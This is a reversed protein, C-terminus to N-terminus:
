LEDVQKLNKPVAIGVSQFIRGCIGKLENRMLFRKGEHEIEVKELSNLDRIIDKWEYKYGKKDLRDELTKMLVLALFSCFVHGKITEDCKHYIPRTQLSSKIRRFLDEVTWLQKYKLAVDATDLTTNTNLVYKGDYKAEKKIKDVDLSVSNQEAKLYKRYGKNGVLSKEGSKLKKRLSEIIVKRTKIDKTAQDENFCIIWRQGDLNIEKVKLPSPGNQTKPHVVMYRGGRKLVKEGVVKQKRMRSGLIYQWGLEEVMAINNKSVMGRDAVICISKIGVRKKLRKVVPVLRSVDSTNGPLIECCVPQGTNDLVAGVILQKRDSRHDKSNGYEGLCSGGNGEFYISTTDFFVLDLSTFLDRRYSFLLEEMQGKISVPLDEGLWAMARYLHHLELGKMGEIHYDLRWKDASRDSGSEFIRHLVTLFLAREVDFEFKRGKLLSKIVKKCGSEEWLREFILPPGVGKTSVVPAKGRKHASIVMLAQSFKSGSLLLSDFNGSELLKDVRGLTALVRQKVKGDERRNEVIQLYSRSGSKKERFFM